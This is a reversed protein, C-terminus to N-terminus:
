VEPHDPGFRSIRPVPPHRLLIRDPSVRGPPVRDPPDRRAPMTRPPSNGRTRGPRVPTALLLRKRVRHLSSTRTITRLTWAEERLNGHAAATRARLRAGIQRTGPSSARRLTLFHGDRFA